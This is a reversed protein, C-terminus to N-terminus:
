GGVDLAGLAKDVSSHTHFERVAVAGDDPAFGVVREVVVAQRGIIASILEVM